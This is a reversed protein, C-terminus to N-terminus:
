LNVEFLCRIDTELKEFHPIYDEYRIFSWGFSELFSQRIKDKERAGPLNHWYSGDYEIAIFHSPIAVDIFFGQSPYNIEAQPFINKVLEYLKLQPKSPNLISNIFKKVYKPDKWRKKAANRMKIKVSPCKFKKSMRESQAKRNEDKSWYKKIRIINNERYIPDECRKKAAEKVIKKHSPDKHIKCIKQKIEIKEFARKVGESIKKRHDPDKNLEIMTLSMSEKYEQSSYLTKMHKIHDLDEWMNKSMTCMNSRYEPDKWREITRERAKQRQEDTWIGRLQRIQKERFEINSKWLEKRKQSLKRKIEPDSNACPRGCFKSYGFEIGRYTSEKGCSCIGEDKKKLFKDYYDKSKISHIQILHTAVGQLSNLEKGCIRCILNNM